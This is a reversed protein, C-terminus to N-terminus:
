GQALARLNACARGWEQVRRAAQYFADYAEPLSMGTTEVLYPMRKEPDPVPLKATVVRQRFHVSGSAPRTGALSHEGTRREM